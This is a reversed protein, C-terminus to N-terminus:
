AKMGIIMTSKESWVPTRGRWAHVTEVVGFGSGM